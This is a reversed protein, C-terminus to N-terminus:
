DSKFYQKRGSYIDGFSLEPVSAIDPVVESGPVNFAPEPVVVSVNGMVCLYCDFVFYFPNDYTIIQVSHTV